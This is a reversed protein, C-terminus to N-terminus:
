EQAYLVIEEDQIKKFFGRSKLAELEAPTYCLIDCDVPLELLGYIRRLRTVFDEETDMVVLVDLDTLLDRSGRAYSGFVSIKKVEPLSSLTRVLSKLAERLSASYKKRRAALDPAMGTVQGALEQASRLDQHGAIKAQVFNVSNGAWFM